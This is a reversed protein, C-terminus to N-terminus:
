APLTFSFFVFRPTVRLPPPEGRRASSSSPVLVSYMKVSCLVGDNGRPLAPSCFISSVQRRRRGGLLAKFSLCLVRRTKRKENKNPTYIYHCIKLSASEESLHRTKAFCSICSLEPTFPRVRSHLLRPPHCFATERIGESCAGSCLNKCPLARRAHPNTTV